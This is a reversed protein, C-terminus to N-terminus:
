SNLVTVPHLQFLVGRTRKGEPEVIDMKLAPDVQPHPVCVACRTAFSIRFPFLEILLLVATQGVQNWKEPKMYYSPTVAERPPSKTFLRHVYM